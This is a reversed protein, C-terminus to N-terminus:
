FGYKQLIYDKNYFECALVRMGLKVMGILKPKKIDSIDAISFGLHNGCLYILNPSEEHSCVSESNGTFLESIIKINDM